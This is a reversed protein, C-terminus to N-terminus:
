ESGRGLSRDVERSILEACQGVSHLATDVTMPTRDWDQYVRSQVERWTPLRLGAIDTSRSEVRRQHEVPDSCVVEIEVVVSGSASGVARWRERTVLLPNVSDVLVRRTGARLQEAALAYGVEYGVPGLPQRVETSNILTQEITDIRLYAAGTAAVYARAISSKGTGPLGGVVILAGPSSDM